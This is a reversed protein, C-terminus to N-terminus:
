RLYYEVVVSLRNHGMEYSVKAIIEKDYGRYNSKIIEGNGTKILCLEKYLDLAYQHRFAYNDIKTTYKEFLPKNKDEHYINVFEVKSLCEVTKIGYKNQSTKENQKELDNMKNLVEKIQINYKQEIKEQYIKLCVTERYKGNKEILSCYIRNNYKFLSILKAEFQGKHISQRRVGFAKAFLIQNAYNKPNYKLDEPSPTRSKTTKKYSRQELNGDNKKLDFNLVKNLASM